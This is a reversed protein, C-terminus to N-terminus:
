KKRVNGPGANYAALSLSYDGDYRQLMDHLYKVGAELNKLPNFREDISPNPTPKRVNEYSPVKLGLDRATPPMLQMLGVAGNRSIAKPNFTSERKVLAIILEIEVGYREAIRKTPSKADKADNVVRKTDDTVREPLGETKTKERGKVPTERERVAPVRQRISTEQKGM